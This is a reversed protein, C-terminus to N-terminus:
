RLDITNGDVKPQEDTQPKPRWKKKFTGLDIVEELPPPPEPKIPYKNPTEPARPAAPLPPPLIPQRPSPIQYNASPAQFNILNIDVGSKSLPARIPELFKTKIEATLRGLVNENIGLQRNLNQVFDRAPVEKAAVRFVLKPIVNLKDKTVGFRKNIDGILATIEESGIWDLITDDTIM